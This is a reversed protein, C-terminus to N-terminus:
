KQLLKLNPIEHWKLDASVEGDAIFTKLIASPNCKKSNLSRTGSFTDQEYKLSISIICVCGPELEFDFQRPEIKQQVFASKIDISQVTERKQKGHTLDYMALSISVKCNKTDKPYKIDKPMDFGPLVVKLTKGTITVGPQVFFYNRLPSDMNFEFGNMRELGENSFHYTKTEPNYAQRVAFLVETNFRSVMTGDQLEGITDWMNDRFACALNSAIGFLSAAKKTDKTQRFNESIPREQIVQKGRYKRYVYKGVAGHLYKGDNIAM